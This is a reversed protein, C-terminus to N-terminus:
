SINQVNALGHTAANKRRILYARIALGSFIALLAISWYLNPYLRSRFDDWHALFEANQSPSLQACDAVIGDYLEFAQRSKWVQAIQTLILVIWLWLPAKDLWNLLKRM